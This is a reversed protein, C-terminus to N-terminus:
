HLTSKSESHTEDNKTPSLKHILSLTDTKDEEKVKRSEVKYTTNLTEPLTQVSAKLDLLVNKVSKDNILSTM